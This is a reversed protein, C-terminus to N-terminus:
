LLPHLKSLFCIYNLKMKFVVSNVKLVDLLIIRYKICKGLREYNCVHGLQVQQFVKSSNLVWKKPVISQTEKDYFM